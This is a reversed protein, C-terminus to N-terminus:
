HFISKLKDFFGRKKEPQKDKPLNQANLNPIAGPRVAPPPIAPTPAATQEPSTADWGAIETAGGQHLPCFQVPQTGLLYYATSVKPCASTALAGTEPDIQASVVGDPVTFPTVDRYARHKHARKMFDTWIPVAAKPGDLKLDHYDDRGIWVVCLLKSTFGAFWADNETGTKGAAPLTFGRARVGAGTGSRLVEEMLTVTLFNVRPDLIKKTELQSEWVPNGSKDVIRSIFRPDVRVGSNAFVTYAGAMELPTVNYTGLAM